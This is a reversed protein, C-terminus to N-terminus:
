WGGKGGGGGWTSEACARQLLFPGGRSGTGGELPTRDVILDVKVQLVRYLSREACSLLCAGLLHLSNSCLLEPPHLALKFSVVALLLLLECAEPSVAPGERQERCVSGGERGGERGAM